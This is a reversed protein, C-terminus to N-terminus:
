VSAIRLVPEGDVDFLIYTLYTFSRLSPFKCTLDVDEWSCIERGNVDLETRHRWYQCSSTGRCFRTGDMRDQLTSVNPGPGCPLFTGYLPRASPRPLYPNSLTPGSATILATYQLLLSPLLLPSFALLNFLLFKLSIM